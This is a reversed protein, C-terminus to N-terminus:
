PMFGASICDRRVQHDSYKPKHRSDVVHPRVITSVTDRLQSHISGLVTPPSLGRRLPKTTEQALGQPIDIDICVGRAAVFLRVPGSSLFPKKTSVPLTGGASRPLM